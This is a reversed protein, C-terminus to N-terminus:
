LRILIRVSCFGRSNKRFVQWRTALIIVAFSFLHHPQVLYDTDAPQEHTINERELALPVSFVYISVIHYPESPITAYMFRSPVSPLHQLIFEVRISRRQQRKRITGDVNDSFRRTKEAPLIAFLDACWCLRWLFVQKALIQEMQSLWHRLCACCLFVEALVLREAATKLQLIANWGNM